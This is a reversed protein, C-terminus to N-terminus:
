RKYVEDNLWRNIEIKMEYVRKWFDNYIDKKSFQFIKTCKMGYYEIEIFEESVKYFIQFNSNPVLAIAQHIFLEQYSVDKGISARNKLWTIVSSEVIEKLESAYKYTSRWYGSYYDCVRKIFEKQERNTIREEKQFVLIKTPDQRYAEDFEIETASKGEETKMGFEKGLLLIYLDCERAIKSTELASSMAQSSATYPAAGVLEFIPNNEYLKSIISREEEMGYVKSSIM